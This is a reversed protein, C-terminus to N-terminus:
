GAAAGARPGGGGPGPGGGDRGQASGTMLVKVLCFM